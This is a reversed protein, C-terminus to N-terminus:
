SVRVEREEPLAYRFCGTSEYVMTFNGLRTTLSKSKKPRLSVELKEPFLHFIEYGSTFYYNDVEAKSIDMLYRVHDLGAENEDFFVDLNERWHDPSVDPVAVFNRDIDQVKKVPQRKKMFDEKKIIGNPFINRQRYQAAKRFIIGSGGWIRVVFIKNSSSVRRGVDTAQMVISVRSGNNM